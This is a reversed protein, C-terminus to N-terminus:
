RSHVVSTEKQPEEIAEQRAETKIREVAARAAARIKPDSSRALRKLKPLSREAPDGIKALSKVAYCVVEPDSDGLALVLQETAQTREDGLKYISKAVYYRIRDENHPDVLAAALEAVAPSAAQGLKALSKAARYRVKPDTDSLAKALAPVAGNAKVGQEIHDEIQRAASYRADRRGSQLERTLQRLDPNGSCGVLLPWCVMFVLGPLPRAWHSRMM